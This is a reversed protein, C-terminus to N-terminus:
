TSTDALAAFKRVVNEIHFQSPDDIRYAGSFDGDLFREVLSQDFDYSPIDLIPRGVLHYDILKSPTQKEGENRINLLFDMRSLEMLVDVRPRFGHLIIRKDKKAVEGLLTEATRSYIHFEFYTSRSCVFEVFARPDRFGTIFAGAFAFRPVDSPQYEGDGSFDYDAFRFGQPVVEIKHRFEPYYAETAGITPVTIHNARSCFSKELFKFYFLPKVRSNERGMYPDGCDAIWIDAPLLGNRHAAAVGWHISHPFAISLLVDHKPIRSLAGKVRFCWEILPYDFCQLLIRSLMRRLLQFRVGSRVSLQPWRLGGLDFFRIGFDEALQSQEPHSETLVSVEKGQRCLEKALETARHSRPSNRPFFDASVILWHKTTM